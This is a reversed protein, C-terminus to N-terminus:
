RHAAERELRNLFGKVDRSRRLVVVRVYRQARMKELLAPKRKPYGWVWRLFEGTLREPNGASMDPRTRNHFRLRRKLVLRPTDLFIVTDAAALRLDLTSGYNGDMVWREREVLERQREAWQDEPTPVWGVRWYLGDLHVVPLGTKQGLARALTSKGAGGSGIIVVRKM